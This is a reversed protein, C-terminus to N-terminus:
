RTQSALYSKLVKKDSTQDMIDGAKNTVWYKTVTNVLALWLVRSEDMHIWVMNKSERAYLLACFDRQSEVNL